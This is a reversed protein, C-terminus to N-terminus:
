GVWSIRISPCQESVHEKVSFFLELGDNDNLLWYSRVTETIMSCRRSNFTKNNQNPNEEKRSSENALITIWQDNNM